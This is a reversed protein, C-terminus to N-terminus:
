TSLEVERELAVGFREADVAASDGSEVAILRLEIRALVRRHWDHRDGRRTADRRRAGGYEATRRRLGDRARTPRARVGGSVQDVSTVVGDRIRPWVEQFRAYGVPRTAVFASYTSAEHFVVHCAAEFKALDVTGHVDAFRPRLVDVTAGHAFVLDDGHVGDFVGRVTWRDVSNWSYLAVVDGSTAHLRAGRARQVDRAVIGPSVILEVNTPPTIAEIAVTAIVPPPALTEDGLALVLRDARLHARERVAFGAERAPDLSVDHSRGPATSSQVADVRVWDGDALGDVYTSVELVGAVVFTDVNTRHEADVPAEEVDEETEHRITLRIPGTYGVGSRDTVNATVDLEASGRTPPVEQVLHCGAAVVVFLAALLLAGMSAFRHWTPHLPKREQIQVFEESEISALV